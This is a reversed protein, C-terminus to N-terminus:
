SHFDLGSQVEEIYGARIVYDGFHENEQREKAYEFLMPKITGLIEEEGINEKYLKNLRNGTFGGGLYMNYKGPGKGIFGIESLAPRSCGNPCGSMRIVIEEDQLGAEDIVDDMKDILSPLYRESEAMALGCTPFAVCAMSNRRLASNYRGDTLGYQEVLEDIEQKKDEEVRAIIVNQNPTLRFEGEHVKAIERLGTM